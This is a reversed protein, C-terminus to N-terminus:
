ALIERLRHAIERALEEAKPKDLPRNPDDFVGQRPVTMTIKKDTTKNRFTLEFNDPHEKVETSDEGFHHM